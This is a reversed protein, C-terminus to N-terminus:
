KRRSAVLVLCGSLLLFAGVLLTSSQDGGTAALVAGDGPAPVVEPATANAAINMVFGVFPAWGTERLFGSGGFDRFMVDPEAEAGVTAAATALSVNLSNYPGAAGIPATGYSQTNYGVGVIVEDPLELALSSLDFDVNFAFGNHCTGTGPNFWRRDGCNPVDASPRFPVDVAQVVSALVAGAAPDPGSNDVAYITLTIPHEFTSGATTVCPLPDAAPVWVNGSLTFDSECAWDNLGVTISDVFRNTGAFVVHDGFERTQQAQYGLSSFSPPYVAPISNYIPSGAARAPLADSQM